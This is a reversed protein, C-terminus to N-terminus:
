KEVQLEEYMSGILAMCEGIKAGLLQFLISADHKGVLSAIGALLALNLRSLPYQSQSGFELCLAVVFSHAPPKERQGDM